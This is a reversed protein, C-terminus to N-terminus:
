GPAASSLHAFSTQHTKPGFIPNLRKSETKVNNTFAFALSSLVFTRSAFGVFHVSSKSVSNFGNPNLKDFSKAM